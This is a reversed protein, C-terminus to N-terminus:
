LLGPFDMETGRTAPSSLPPPIPTPVHEETTAENNPTARPTEGGGSSGSGSGSDTNGHRALVDTVEDLATEIWETTEWLEMLLRKVHRTRLLTTHLKEDLMSTPTPSPSM